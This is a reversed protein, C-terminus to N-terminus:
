VSHLHLQTLLAISSEPEEILMMEKTINSATLIRLSLIVLCGISTDLELPWLVKVTANTLRSKVMPRFRFRGYTRHSRSLSSNGNAIQFGISGGDCPQEM